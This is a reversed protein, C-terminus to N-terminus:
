KVLGLKTGSKNITLTQKRNGSDKYSVHVWGSNKDNKLNDCFELILQDFEFNDRIYCALDYNSNGMVEIDAAQGNCHQSTKVGGVATNLKPCRYCSNVTIPKGLKERLPQLVNKCLSVMNKYHEETPKNEIGKKVATASYTLENLTFNKTIQNEMVFEKKVPIEVVSPDEAAEKLVKEELTKGALISVIYELIKDLIKM